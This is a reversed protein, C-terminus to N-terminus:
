LIMTLILRGQEVLERLCQPINKNRESSARARTTDNNDNDNDENWGKTKSDNIICIYLLKIVWLLYDHFYWATYLYLM